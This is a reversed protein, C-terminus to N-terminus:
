ARKIYYSEYRVGYYKVLIYDIGTNFHGIGRKTEEQALSVRYENFNWLMTDIGIEALKRTDCLKGCNRKSM